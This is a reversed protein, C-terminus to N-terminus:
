RVLPFSSSGGRHNLALSILAAQGGARHVEVVGLPHDFAPGLRNAQEVFDSIMSEPRNADSGVELVAAGDLLGLLDGVM